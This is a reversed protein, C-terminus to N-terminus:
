SIQKANREVNRCWAAVTFSSQKLMLPLASQLLVQGLATNIAAACRNWRMERVKIRLFLPLASQALSWILVKGFNEDAEKYKMKELYSVAEPGIM